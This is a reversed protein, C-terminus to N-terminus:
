VDTSIRLLCTHAGLSAEMVTFAITAVHLSDTQDAINLKTFSARFAHDTFAGLGVRKRHYITSSSGAPVRSGQACLTIEMLTFVLCAAGDLGCARNIVTEACWARRTHDASAAVFIGLLHHHILPGHCVWYDNNSPSM